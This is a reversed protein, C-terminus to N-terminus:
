LKIFFIKEFVFKDIKNCGTALVNVFKRFKSLYKLSFLKFNVNYM